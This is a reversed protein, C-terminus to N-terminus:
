KEELRKREKERYFQRYHGGILDSIIITIISLLIILFFKLNLNPILAYISIALLIIILVPKQFIGKIINKSTNSIIKLTGRSFITQLGGLLLNNLIYWSIARTEWVLKFLKEKLM